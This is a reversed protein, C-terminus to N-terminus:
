AARLCLGRLGSVLRFDGRLLGTCQRRCVASLPDTEQRRHAVTELQQGTFAIMRAGHQGGLTYDSDHATGKLSFRGAGILQRRSEAQYESVEILVLAFDAGAVCQCQGGLVLKIRRSDEDDPLAMSEQARHDTLRRRSGAPQDPRRLRHRTRFADVHFVTQNPVGAMAEAARRWAPASM